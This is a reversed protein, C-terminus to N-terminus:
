EQRYSVQRPVTTYSRFRSTNLAAVSQLWEEKEQTLEEELQRWTAANEEGAQSVMDRAVWQNYVEWQDLHHPRPIQMMVSMLKQNDLRKLTIKFRETNDPGHEYGWQTREYRTSTDTSRSEVM